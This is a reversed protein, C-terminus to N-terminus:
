DLFSANSDINDKNILIYRFDFAKQKDSAAPESYKVGPRGIVLGLIDGSKIKDILFKTTASGRGILIIAPHNKGKFISLRQPNEPLGSMFLVAGVDPHKAILADVAKPTMFDSAPTGDEEASAPVEVSETAVESAGCEKTLSEILRKTFRDRNKEDTQAYNPDAIIVLKKGETQSKIFKGVIVGRATQYELENDVAGSKGGGFLGRTQLFLFAGVLVVVFLVFSVPQLAPNVRQKKSCVIMGILGVVMIAIGIIAKVTM